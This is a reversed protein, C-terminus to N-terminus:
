ENVARKTRIQEAAEEALQQDFIQDPTPAIAELLNDDANENWLSPRTLDIRRRPAAKPANKYKPEPVQMPEWTKAKEATGKPLITIGHIEQTSKGIRDALPTWFEEDQNVQTHIQRSRNLIESYKDKKSDEKPLAEVIELERNILAIQHRAHVVYLSISSIPIALMAPAMLGLAIFLIILISLASIGAFILRRDSMEREKRRLVEKADARGNGATRAMLSMTYAFREISRGSIEEHSAIWRPMFYALWMGVIVVYILGSGM